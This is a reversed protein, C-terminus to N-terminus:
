PPRVVIGAPKTNVSYLERTTTTWGGGKSTSEGDGSDEDDDNNFNQNSSCRDRAATESVEPPGESDQGVRSFGNAEFGIGDLNKAM